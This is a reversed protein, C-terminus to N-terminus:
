PTPTPFSPSPQVSPTREIIEIYAKFDGSTLTCEGPERAEYYIPYKDLGRLSGSAMYALHGPPDCRLENIPYKENDLFVFYKKWQVLVITQGNSEDNIHSNERWNQEATAILAVDMTNIPGPTLKSWDISVKPRPYPNDMTVSTASPPPYPEPTPTRADQTESLVASQQLSIASSDISTTPSQRCAAICFPLILLMLKKMRPGRPIELRSIPPSPPIRVQMGTPYM